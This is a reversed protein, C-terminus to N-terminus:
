YDLKQNILVSLKLALHKQLQLSFYTYLKKKSNLDLAGEINDVGESPFGFVTSAAAVFTVSVFISFINFIM